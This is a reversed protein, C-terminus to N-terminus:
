RRGPRWGPRWGPRCGPRWGPRWGPRCGPRCGPRWGPRWGPRCGLSGGGPSSVTEVQRQSDRGPALGAASILVGAVTAVGRFCHGAQAEGHAMMYGPPVDLSGTSYNVFDGTTSIDLVVSRSLRYRGALRVVYAAACEIHYAERVVDGGGAYASRRWRSVSRESEILARVRRDAADLAAQRTWSATKALQALATATAFHAVLALLGEERDYLASLMGVSSSAGESAPAPSSAGEGAPAPSEVLV